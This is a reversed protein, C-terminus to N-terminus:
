FKFSFENHQISHALHWVDVRGHHLEGLCALGIPLLPLSFPGTVLHVRSTCEVNRVNQKLENEVEQQMGQQPEQMKDDLMYTNNSIIEEKEKDLAEKRIEANTMVNKLFSKMTGSDYKSTKSTPPIANTINRLPTKPSGSSIQKSNSHALGLLKQGQSTM